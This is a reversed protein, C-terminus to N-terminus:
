FRYKKFAEMAAYKAFGLNSFYKATNKNRDEARQWFERVDDGPYAVTDKQSRHKFIARRKKLIQDPSLPVAMDIDHIKWEKWAGRYLWVNCTQMFSKPKLIDISRYIARLCLRHTGHPDNLDGAAYIQHPKITEILNKVIHIDKTSINKKKIRGTQYFPLNLFHIKNENSLGLHKCGQFAESQRILSKIKNLVKYEELNIEKEFLNKIANHFGTGIKVHSDNIINQKMLKNFDNKSLNNVLRKIFETIELVDSNKVAINGSTQYAVHVDHGQQILRDFTGGMSIVDDDPHPAFLIIRKKRPSAREPRQSDDSNPKGGPWGTITHQLMNFVLINTLYASKYQDFIEGMGHEHYDKNTLLLIPKKKKISLWIVAKKILKKDWGVKGSSLIKSLHNKIDTYMWPCTFRNLSSASENDLIFQTNNHNQLFSAPILDNINEEVAKKIAKRKNEGWAILIIKTANLITNIGMSIAQKPVNEIGGLEHSADIRTKNDITVKRTISSELSGPENFGIHGNRGIGLLQLDIGGVKEIKKEYEVCYKEIESEKINGKPIHINEKKIDIHNFLQEHMFYHYSHISNPDMKLYEDLNFTIVNKFSLGEEKHMRILNNYTDIPSSGTPLGLVCNKNLSQKEKITKAIIEAVKLSGLKQHTFFKINIREKFISGEYDIKKLTKHSSEFNQEYTIKINEPIWNNKLEYSLLFRLKNLSNITEKKSKEKNPYIYKNLCKGNYIKIRKNNFYFYCFSRKKNYFSIPNTYIHKM